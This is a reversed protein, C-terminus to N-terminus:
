ASVGKDIPDPWRKPSYVSVAAAKAIQILNGGQTLSNTLIVRELISQLSVPRFDWVDVGVDCQNKLPSMQGHSHGHLQISGKDGFSGNWHRMAYHSMVLNTGQTGREAYHESFAWQHHAWTSEGDHNGRVLHLRGNLKPLYDGAVTKRSLSFDGIHWVDDEPAVVSNWNKIMTDDIYHVAAEIREKLVPPLTQKATVYKRCLARDGVDMFPRDCHIIINGHGFHTDSTFWLKPKM